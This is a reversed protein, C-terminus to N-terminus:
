FGPRARACTLRPKSRLRHITEQCTVIKMEITGAFSQPSMLVMLGSTALFIFKM